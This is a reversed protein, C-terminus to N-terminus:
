LVSKLSAIAVELQKLNPEFVTLKQFMMGPWLIAKVFGNKIHKAGFLLVEFSVGAIVPIFIIRVLLKVIWSPYSILSFFLISIILVIGIFTTGCRPHIGPFKQANKPTLKKGSELCHISKHEAGHYQFVRRVDKMLSILYIYLIFIAIRILGDIINFILGNDSTLLRTLFLPFLLFLGVAFLLSFLITGFIHWGSLKEKKDNEDDMAENASWNLSKIGLITFDFLNVVGRIFPQKFITNHTIKYIEKKVKISGDKKRVAIAVKDGNRMMVGEIVAQGGVLSKKM